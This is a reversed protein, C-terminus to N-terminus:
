TNRGIVISRFVNYNNQRHLKFPFPYLSLNNVVVIALLDIWRINFDIQLEKFENYFMTRRKEYSLRSILEKEFDTNYKIDLLHRITYRGDTLLFGFGLKECFEIIAEIKKQVRCDVMGTLDKIEVIFAEGSELIVAFDPTYIVKERGKKFTLTIPQELYTKVQPCSELLKIFKLELGSEYQVHRNCKASLFSGSSYKPNYNVLRQPVLFSSEIDDWKSKKNFWIVQNLIDEQKRSIKTPPTLEGQLGELAKKAVRAKKKEWKEFLKLCSTVNEVESFTLRSILEVVKKGPYECLNYDWFNIVKFYKDDGPCDKTFSDLAKILQVVPINSDFKRGAWGLKKLTRVHIQRIRERTLNYRKAIDEFDPFVSNEFDYCQKIILADRENIIRQKSSRNVCDLSKTFLDVIIQGQITM